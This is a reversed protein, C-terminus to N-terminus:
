TTRKKQPNTHKLFSFVGRSFDISVSPQLSKVAGLSYFIFTGDCSSGQKRKAMSSEVTANSMCRVLANDYQMLTCTAGYQFVGRSCLLAHLWTRGREWLVGERSCPVHRSCAELFLFELIVNVSLQCFEKDSWMGRPLQCNEALFIDMHLRQHLRSSARKVKQWLVRVCAFNAHALRRTLGACLTLCCVVGERPHM